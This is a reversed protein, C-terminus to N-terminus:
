DIAEFQRRLELVRKMVRHKAIFVANRSLGLEGAVEAAPRGHLAFLEFARITNSEVEARV